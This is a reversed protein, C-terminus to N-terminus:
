EGFGFQRTINFGLIYGPTGLNKFDNKNSYKAEQSLLGNSNCIFIQFQHYGTSFEVGLGLNPLPRNATSLNSVNLPHDYEFMFSGQPSFKYRGIVNFGYFDHHEYFTASDVMNYHTYNFGAQISIRKSFKRAIMIENYYSLRNARNYTNERNFLTAEKGGKIGVNGYYTLTIPMGSTKQKLLSYKWSFDYLQKNKTAAIAVSLSKTIGYGIVLRINSPAYIGYLDSSKDILGFRHQIAADLFGKDTTQVTQNNIHLSNEFTAKVVEPAPAPETDQAFSAAPACLILVALIFKISQTKM